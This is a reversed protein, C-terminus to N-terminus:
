SVGRHRAARVRQEVADLLAYARRWGPVRREVCGHLWGRMRQMPEPPLNLIREPELVDLIFQAQEAPAALALDVAGAEAGRLRQVVEAAVAEPFRLWLQQVAAPPLRVEGLVRSLYTEPLHQWAAVDDLRAPDLRALGSVFCQWHREGFGAYHPEPRGPEALYQAVQDALLPKWLLDARPHDPLFLLSEPCGQDRWVQWLAQAVKDWAVKRLEALSALADLGMVDEALPAASEWELVGHAIEDLIKGPRDLPHTGM